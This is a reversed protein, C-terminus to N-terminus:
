LPIYVKAPTIFVKQKVLFDSTSSRASGSLRPCADVFMPAVRGTVAVGSGSDLVLSCPLCPVPPLAVRERPVRTGEPSLPRQFHTEWSWPDFTLIIPEWFEKQISIKIVSLSSLGEVTLGRPNLTM